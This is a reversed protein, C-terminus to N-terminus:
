LAEDVRQWFTALDAQDPPSWLHDLWKLSYSGADEVPPVFYELPWGQERLLRRNGAEFRLNCWAQLVRRSLAIGDLDGPWEIDLSRLQDLIENDDADVFYRAPPSGRLANAAVLPLGINERTSVGSLQKRDLGLVVSAFDAVVDGQALMDRVFPRVVVTVGPALERLSEIIPQYDVRDVEREIYVSPSVGRRFGWQCWASEMWDHQPRIYLVFRVDHAGSLRDFGALFPEVRKHLFYWLGEGSLVVDSKEARRGISDELPALLRRQADFWDEGADFAQRTTERYRRGIWGSNEGRRRFPQATIGGNPRSRFRTGERAVLFDIGHKRRLHASNAALWSQISTSGCKPLGFHVLVRGMQGVTATPVDLPGPCIVASPGRPLGARQRCSCRDRHPQRGDSKAPASVSVRKRKTVLVM